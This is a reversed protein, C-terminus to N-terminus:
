SSRVPRRTSSRRPSKTPSARRALHPIRVKASILRWSASDAPCTVSFRRCRRCSVDYTSCSPVNTPDITAPPQDGAREPTFVPGTPPVQEPVNVVKTPGVRAKGPGALGGERVLVAATTPKGVALGSATFEDTVVNVAQAEAATVTFSIECSAGADLSLHTIAVDPDGASASADAVPAVSATCTSDVPADRDLRLSSPVGVGTAGGRVASTAAITLRYTASEGPAIVSPEFSASLKPAAGLTDVKEQKVKNVVLGNDNAAIAPKDVFTAAETASTPAIDELHTPSIPIVPLFGTGPIEMTPRRLVAAPDIAPAAVTRASSEGAATHSVVGRQSGDNAVIWGALDRGKDTTLDGRFLGADSDAFSAAFTSRLAGDPGTYVGSVGTV